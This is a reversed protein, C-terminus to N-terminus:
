PLPRGVVALAFGDYGKNGVTQVATALIRGDVAMAEFMARTGLVDPDTSTPDAVRGDRVVNDVVIVTGPRGLRVAWDLYLPNGPKNADIFVLDFPESGALTPLTSAAPGVIVEARAALGARELNSRAVEAHRPDVELSVLRGSEPLARALWITSYGALTGVELIRRAGCAVALLQLLRGQTASVQIPPLGARDAAELAADLVPDAALLVGELYRDVDAWLDQTM